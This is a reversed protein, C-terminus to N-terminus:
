KRMVLGRIRDPQGDTDRAARLKLLEALLHYVDVNQVEDITAGERVGPGTIAFLAHMSPAAPAWGHMGWRGFPRTVISTAITWPEDSGCRIPTTARRECHIRPRAAKSSKAVKTSAVMAAAISNKASNVGTTSCGDIACGNTHSAPQAIEGCRRTSGSM